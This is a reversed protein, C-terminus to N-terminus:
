SSAEYSLVFHYFYIHKYTHTHTYTHTDCVPLLLLTTHAVYLVSDAANISLALALPTKGDENVDDAAGPYLQLLDNYKARDTTRM